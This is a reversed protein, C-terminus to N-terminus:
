RRAGIPLAERWTLVANAKRHVRDTVGEWRHPCDISLLRRVLRQRLEAEEADAGVAEVAFVHRRSRGAGSRRAVVHHAGVHEGVQGDSFPEVRVSAVAVEVILRPPHLLDHPPQWARRPGRGLVALAGVVRPVRFPLVDLKHEARREERQHREDVVQVPDVHLHAAKAHGHTICMCTCACVRVHVYVYM